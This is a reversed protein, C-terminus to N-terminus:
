SKIRNIHIALWICLPKSSTYDISHKTDAPIFLYDGKGLRITFNEFRLDAKGQLLVVWEDHAQCIWKGLPTINGKSIIKEIKVNVSSYLNEFFENRFKRYKPLELINKKKLIQKKRLSGAM